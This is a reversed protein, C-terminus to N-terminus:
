IQIRIRNYNVHHTVCSDLGQHQHSTSIDIFPKISYRCSINRFWQIKPHKTYGIWSKTLWIHIESEATEPHDVILILKFQVNVVYTYIHWVIEWIGDRDIKSLLNVSFFMEKTVYHIKMNKPETRNRLNPWGFFPESPRTGFANGQRSLINVTKVLIAQESYNSFNWNLYLQSKM